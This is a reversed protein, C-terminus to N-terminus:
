ILDADERVYRKEDVEHLGEKSAGVDGRCGHRDLRESKEIEGFLQLEHHVIVDRGRGMTVGEPVRRGNGHSM